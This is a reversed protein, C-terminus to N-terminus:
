ELSRSFKTELDGIRIMYISKKTGLFFNNNCNRIVGSFSRLIKDSDESNKFKKGKCEANIVSDLGSMAMELDLPSGGASNILKNMAKIFSSSLEFSAPGDEKSEGQNEKDTQDEGAEQKTEKNENDGGEAKAEASEPKEEAPNAEATNVPEAKPVEAKPAQAKFMKEFFSM